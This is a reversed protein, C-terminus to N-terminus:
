HLGVQQWSRDCPSATYTTGPASHQSVEPTRPKLAGHNALAIQLINLLIVPFVILLDLENRPLLIPNDIPRHSLELSFTMDDMGNKLTVRLM